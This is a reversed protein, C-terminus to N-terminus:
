AYVYFWLWIRALFTSLSEHKNVEEDGTKPLGLGLSLCLGLGIGLGLSLGLGLGLGLGPGMCLGM